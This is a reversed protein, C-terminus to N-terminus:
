RVPAILHAAIEPRTTVPVTRRTLEWASHISHRGHEISTPPTDSGADVYFLLQSSYGIAKAGFHM